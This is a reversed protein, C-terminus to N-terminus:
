RGQHQILTFPSKQFLKENNWNLYCFESPYFCFFRSHFTHIWIKIHDKFYKQSSNLSFNTEELTIIKRLFYIYKKLYGCLLYKYINKELLLSLYLIIKKKWTGSWLTLDSDKSGDLAAEMMIFTLFIHNLFSSHYNFTVSSTHKQDSTGSVVHLSHFFGM